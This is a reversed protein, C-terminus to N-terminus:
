EKLNMLINFRKKRRNREEVNVNDNDLVNKIVKNKNWGNPYRPRFRKLYNNTIQQNAIIIEKIQGIPIPKGEEVKGNGKVNGEKGNAGEVKGEEVKGNGKVNGEKGNAGEVKGEKGNGEKGNGENVGNAKVGNNCNLKVGNLFNPLRGNYVFNVLHKYEQPTFCKKNNKIYKNVENATPDSLMFKKFKDFKNAIKVAEEVNKNYVNLKTKNLQNKYHNFYKFINNYQKNNFMKKFNPKGNKNEINVSTVYEMLNKLAKENKKLLELKIEKKLKNNRTKSLNKFYEEFIKFAKQDNLAENVVQAKNTTTAVNKNACHNKLATKVSENTLNNIFGKIQNTCNVKKLYNKLITGEPKSAIFNKLKNLTSLNTKKNNSAVVEEAIAAVFPTVANNPSCEKFNTNELGLIKALSRVVKVM